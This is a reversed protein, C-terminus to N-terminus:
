CTYLHLSTAFSIFALQSCPQCALCISWFIFQPNCSIDEQKRHLWSLFTIYWVQTLDVSHIELSLTKCTKFILDHISNLNEKGLCHNCDYCKYDIVGDWIELRWFNKVLYTTWLSSGYTWIGVMKDVHFVTLVFLITIHPKELLVLQEYSLKMVNLSDSFLFHNM